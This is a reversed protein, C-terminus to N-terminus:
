EQITLAKTHPHLLMYCFTLPLSTSQALTCWSIALGFGHWSSSATLGEYRLMRLLRSNSCDSCVKKYRIMRLDGFYFCDAPADYHLEPDSPPSSFFRRHANLPWKSVISKLTPFALTRFKCIHSRSSPQWDFCSVISNEIEQFGFNFFNALFKRWVRRRWFHKWTTCGNKVALSWSWKRFSPIIVLPLFEFHSM